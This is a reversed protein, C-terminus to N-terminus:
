RAEQTQDDDRDAPDPLPVIPERRNRLFRGNTRSFYAFSRDRDRPAPGGLPYWLAEPAVGDVRLVRSLAPWRRRAAPAALRAVDSLLADTYTWPDPASPEAGAYRAAADWCELGTVTVECSGLGLPKGGGLHLAYDASQLGECRPLLVGPQLTVLLSGLEARSLNDFRIRQTFVTGKPVLRRDQSMHENRQEPRAVHRPPDQREPDGHWYFKRGRVARLGDADHESGWYAAPLNEEASAPDDRGHELYFQGAGPRPAGLPALRVTTTTVNEATASGFRVHGAYSRQDAEAERDGGSTDAAGFMRCSVCLHGPDTCPHADAPVREGLSGSGPVRWIAAMSLHDITGTAADVHVWVVDGRWLRGTARRRLGITRRDQWTVPATVPGSAWEKVEPHRPNQRYRRMDDTGDCLRQYEQWADLTVDLLDGEAPLRGAACFFRKSRRRTGGDGVLIVWGDGGRVGAQDAERRGLSTESIAWEALDVTDGTRPVGQLAHRIGEIPVWVTEETVNVTVARGTETATEVRGLYWGEGMGVAPRRYVPVFTEDLVRLCGGMLTEHLSRVAGKVSSGPITVGGDSVPGEAQPLLLPTRLTWTVTMSGCLHGPVARHHGAPRARDITEPLSVFTYPNIFKAM